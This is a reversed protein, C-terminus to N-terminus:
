HPPKTKKLLVGTIAGLILGMLISVLLIVPYGMWWFKLSQAKQQDFQEQTIQGSELAPGLRAEMIKAPVEPDLYHVLLINYVIGILASILAIGAGIKLAQGLTLFGGTAKKFNTIGLFTVAAALAIAVSMIVPSQSTHLNQLYLVVAFVVNLGGLLLGYHLAYKGTTSGQQEM